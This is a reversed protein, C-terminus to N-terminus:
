DIADLYVEGREIGDLVISEFRVIGRIRVSEGPQYQTNSSVVWLNGTADQVQYIQAGILPARDSVTGQVTISRDRLLEVRQVDRIAIPQGLGNLLLLRLPSLLLLVVLATLSSLLLLSRAYGKRM